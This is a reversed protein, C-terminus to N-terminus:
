QAVELLFYARVVVPVATTNSVVVTVDQSIEINDRLVLGAPDSRPDGQACESPFGEAGPLLANRGLQLTHVTLGPTVCVFGAVVGRLQSRARLTIREGAADGQPAAPVLRPPLGIPLVLAEQKTPTM